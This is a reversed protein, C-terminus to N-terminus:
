KCETPQYLVYNFGKIWPTQRILVPKEGKNTAILKPLKRQYFGTEFPFFSITIIAKGQTRIEGSSTIHQVSAVGMNRRHGSMKSFQQIYRKPFQNM